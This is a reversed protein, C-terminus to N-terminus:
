LKFLSYALTLNFLSVRTHDDNYKQKTIGAEYRIDVSIRQIDLGAGFQWAFNQNQYDLSTAKDVAGTFTQDKNIAFSVMPGTYIRGGFGFAGIKTGFLLPVDLSTFKARTENGANDYINVDKGTVYVEPQFNFGVAGFRAWIGGLYGARNDSSFNNGQSSLNSLNAGGKIGFQFTPLLQASAFSVSAALIITSLILKKM